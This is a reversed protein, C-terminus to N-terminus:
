KVSLVVLVTVLAVYSPDSALSNPKAYINKIM